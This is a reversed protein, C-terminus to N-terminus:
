RAFLDYRTGKKKDPVDNAIFFAELREEYELWDNEPIFAEISGLNSMRTAM